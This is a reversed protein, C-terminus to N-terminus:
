RLNRALVCHQFGQNFDPIVFCAVSCRLARNTEEESLGRVNGSQCKVHEKMHLCVMVLLVVTGESHLRKLYRQTELCSKKSRKPGLDCLTMWNDPQTALNLNALAAPMQSPRSYREVELEM